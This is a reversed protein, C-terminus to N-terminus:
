WAQSERSLAIREGPRLDPRGKKSLWASQCEAKRTHGRNRSQDSASAGDEFTTPLSISNHLQRVKNAGRNSGAISNVFELVHREYDEPADTIASGHGVGPVEWLIVRPNQEHIMRSHRIPINDDALGAILLVPVSSNRLAATPSAEEMNVKYKSRAYIMGFEIIPRGVTMGFWPGLNFPQGIRDYAI